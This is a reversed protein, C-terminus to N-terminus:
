FYNLPNGYYSYFDYFPKDKPPLPFLWGAQRMQEAPWLSWWFLVAMVYLILPMAMFFFALFMRHAIRHELMRLLLAMALSSGWLMFIHPRILDRLFELSYSFSLQTTVELATQILFYGVGGVWVLDIRGSEM